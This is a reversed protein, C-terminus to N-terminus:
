SAGIVRIEDRASRTDRLEKNLSGEADRLRKVEEESTRARAEWRGGDKIQAELDM